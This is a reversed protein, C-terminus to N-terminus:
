CPHTTQLLLLLLLLLVSHLLLRAPCSQLAANSQWCQGRHLLLQWCIARPLLIPSYFPQVTSLVALHRLNHV